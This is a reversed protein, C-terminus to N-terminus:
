PYRVRYFRRARNASMLDVWVQSSSTLKVSELTEWVSSEPSDAAQIEVTAGAPGNLIVGAFMALDLPTSALTVQCVDSTVAKVPNSVVVSYAGATSASFNTLILEPGVAGPIPQQDKM